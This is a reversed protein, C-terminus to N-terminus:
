CVLLSWWTNLAPAPQLAEAVIRLGEVYFLGSQQREKRDRLKRILKIRPNSASIM